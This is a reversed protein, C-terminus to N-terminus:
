REPTLYFIPAPSFEGSAYLGGGGASWALAEAQPILPVDHAEPARAVAAAWEERADRRYFLVSGYTTRLGAVDELDKVGLPLGPRNGACSFFLGAM